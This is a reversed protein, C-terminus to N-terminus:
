RGQKNLAATLGEITSQMTQMSRELAARESKEKDEVVGVLAEQVRDMSDAAAVLAAGYKEAIAKLDVASAQREKREERLLVYFIGAIPLNILAAIINTTPDGITPAEQGLINLFAILSM